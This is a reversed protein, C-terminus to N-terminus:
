EGRILLPNWPRKEMGEIYKDRIGPDKNCLDLYECGGYMMCAAEEKPWYGDRACQEMRQIKQCMDKMWEEVQPLTRSVVKRQFRAFGVALQVADFLVGYGMERDPFCVRSALVYTSTQTNPSFRKWYFDGLSGETTKHEHPWIRESYNAVGDWYGVALYPEGDPNMLPLPMRWSVEVAPSGDTLKETKLTDNKYHETYWVFARVLAFRSRNRNSTAWPKWQGGDEYTSSVELLKRIGALVAVDFEAGRVLARQYAEQASHYYIGSDLIDKRHVLGMMVSYQYKRPCVAASLSHADWARQMTPLSKCYLDPTDAM